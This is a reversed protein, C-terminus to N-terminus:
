LIFSDDGESQQFLDDLPCSQRKIQWSSWANPSKDKSHTTWASSRLQLWKMSCGRSLGTNNLGDLSCIYLRHTLNQLATHMDIRKCGGLVLTMHWNRQKNFTGDVLWFQDAEKKKKKKRTRWTCSGIKLKVQDVRCTAFSFVWPSCWHRKLQEKRLQLRSVKSPILHPMWLAWTVQKRMEPIVIKHQRGLTQFDYKMKEKRKKKYNNWTSLYIWDRHSWRTWFQLGVAEHM